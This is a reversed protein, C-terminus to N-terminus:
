QQGGHIRGAIYLRAEALIGNQMSVYVHLISVYLRPTHFCLSMSYQFMSVHLISAYLRPTHFSLSTSYPFMPVHLISVSIHLISVHHRPTLFCLPLTYFCPSATSYPFTSHPFLIPPLTNELKLSYYHVEASPNVDVGNPSALTGFVM